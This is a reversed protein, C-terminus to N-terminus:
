RNVGVGVSQILGYQLHSVLLQLEIQNTKNM